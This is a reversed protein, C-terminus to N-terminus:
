PAVSAVAAINHPPCRARPLRVCRRERSETSFDRSSMDFADTDGYSHMEKYDVDVYFAGYVPTSPGHAQRVIRAFPCSGSDIANSLTELEYIHQAYVPTIHWLMSAMDVRCTPYDSLGPPFKGLLAASKVYLPHIALVIEVQEPYTM